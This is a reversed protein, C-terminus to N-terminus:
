SARANSSRKLSTQTEAIGEVRGSTWLSLFHLSNLWVGKFLRSRMSGHRGKYSRALRFQKCCPDCLIDHELM